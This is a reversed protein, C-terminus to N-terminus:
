LALLKQDNQMCGEIQPGRTTNTTRAASAGTASVPVRGADPSPRSRAFNCSFRLVVDMIEVLDHEHCFM